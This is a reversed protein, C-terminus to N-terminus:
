GPKNNCNPVNSSTRRLSIQFFLCVFLFWFNFTELTSLFYILKIYQLSCMIQLFSLASHVHSFLCPALCFFPLSFPLSPFLSLAVSSLLSLIFDAFNWTLLYLATIKPVLFLFCVSLFNLFCNYKLYCWIYSISLLIKVLSIFDKKCASFMLINDPSMLPLQLYFLTGHAHTPFSLM